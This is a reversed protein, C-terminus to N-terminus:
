QFNEWAERPSDDGLLALQGKKDPSHNVGVANGGTGHPTHKNELYCQGNEQFNYPVGHSGMPSGGGHPEEQKQFTYEKVTYSDCKEERYEKREGRTVLYQEVTIQDGNGFLKKFIAGVRMKAKDEDDIAGSSPLEIEQEMCFEVIGSATIPTSLSGDTELAIALQRLWILAPQTARKKAVCHGDMLPAGLFVEQAIWDMVQAWEKFDHRRENGRPKGEGYWFEIVAFICALYHTQNAKVHELLDGEEYETFPYGEPQKLIRVFSSRNALDVTTDIGNSTM